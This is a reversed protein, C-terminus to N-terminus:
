TVHSRHVPVRHCQYDGLAESGRSITGSVAPNQRSKSCESLHTEERAWVRCLRSFLESCTKRILLQTFNYVLSIPKQVKDM